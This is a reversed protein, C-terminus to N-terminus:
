LISMVYTLALSELVQRNCFSNQAAEVSTITTLVFLTFCLKKLRPYDVAIIPLPEDVRVEGSELLDLTKKISSSRNELKLQLTSYLIRECFPRCIEPVSSLTDLAQQIFQDEPSRQLDQLWRTLFSLSEDERSDLLDLMKKITSARDEVKFRITSKLIREYFLRDNVSSLTKLAQQLFQDDPSRKLDQLWRIENYGQEPTLICQPGLPGPKEGM